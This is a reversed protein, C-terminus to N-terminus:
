TKMKSRRLEEMASCMLLFAGVGHLDNISCPRAIYFDYDGVGTGICVNGVELCGDATIELSGVISNFAREACGAADQPLIGHMVARAIAATFLCSSSNELWNGKAEGKDVVQYWRGESSQFRMVASLLSRLVDALVSWRVDDGELQDMVDLIAVPVWGISRGWFEPSRGTASDAWPASRTEDWAHYWLGTVSDEAASKMLLIENFIDDIYEPHAFRRGYESVFPGAMYLGDLWMQGRLNVKHCLGGNSCRPCSLYESIVFDMADRYKEDGTRDYIPYLLIGPQIDDLDGFSVNKARGSEDFVSDIWDKAYIFLDDRGSLSSVKLMGSLFVGQHYHFYGKPPLDEAKFKRMMTDASLLAWDLPTM